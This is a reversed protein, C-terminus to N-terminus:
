FDRVTHENSCTRQITNFHAWKFICADLCPMGIPKTMFDDMGCEFCVNRDSQLVSATLAVIPIRSRKLIDEVILIVIKHLCCTFISGSSEDVVELDRIARSAAMGDMVPMHCDMLVVDYPPGEEERSKRFHELAELGNCTLDIQTYGLRKLMHLLVKQNVRNDEAVLIRCKERWNFDSLDELKLSPDEFDFM